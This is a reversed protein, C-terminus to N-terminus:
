SQYTENGIILPVKSHDKQKENFYNSMIVNYPHDDNTHHAEDFILVNFDTIKVLKQNLLNILKQPTLFLIKSNEFCQNMKAGNMNETNHELEEPNFSNEFSKSQQLALYRTPVLFAM